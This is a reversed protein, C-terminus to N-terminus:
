LGLKAQLKAMNKDDISRNGREWQAVLSQSVQLEAALQRQTWGKRERAQRLDLNPTAVQTQTEFTKLKSAPKSEILLPPLEAPVLDYLHRDIDVKQPFTSRIYVKADLLKELYSRQHKKIDSDPRIEPPYSEDDFEIVWGLEILKGIARDWQEKLKHKRKRDNGALDIKYKPMAIELLDRVRYETVRDAHSDLTLHIALRLALENHYPNIKIVDQALYGFQYLADQSHKGGDMFGKTWMGPRVTIHLDEPNKVNGELDMQGTMQVRVNWMRSTDITVRKKGKKQNPNEWVAKILLCDLAFSTNALELLKSHLSIDTRNEWGLEKIIDKGSLSFESEWPRPCKVAHAAFLLQLLVTNFGFKDIIQRASDWPLVQIDESSSIYHEIYNNSNAHSEQRYYAIGNSNDQQWFDDRLQCLTSTKMPLAAPLIQYKSNEFLRNELNPPQHSRDKLQSFDKTIIKTIKAEISDFLKNLRTELEPSTAYKDIIKQLRDVGDDFITQLQRVSKPNDNNLDTLTIESLIPFLIYNYDVKEDVPDSDRGDNSSARAESQSSNNQLIQLLYNLFELRKAENLQEPFKIKQANM